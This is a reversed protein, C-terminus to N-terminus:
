WRFSVAAAEAQLRRALRRAERLGLFPVVFRQGSAAAGATDIRVRAMGARRDLPTQALTVSQIKEFRVCALRRALLGDRLFVAREGLGWALTRARTRALLLALGVATGWILTITLAIVLPSSGLPARGTSLVALPLLLLLWRVAMRRAARPHVGRWAVREFDAEPQVEALIRSLEDRRCLPVLWKRAVQTESTSDGGASAARLSMRALLRQLLGQHVDLFQVRARPLSATQRTLLGCTTRLDDGRREIRFGHLTLVAWLVTGLQLLVFLGGALLVWGHWGLTRASESARELEPGLRARIRDPDGLERLAVLAGGLLVLGRQELLGFLLVDLPRMRFFPAPADAARAFAEDASRPADPAADARGEPRAPRAFVRTRLEALQASTIVRFVAEPEKGAATELRVEVVGFLRHLPGQLTDINQIRAYPVHRVNRIIVGERIVLEGAAFGYRFTAFRLLAQFFPPLLFVLYWAEEARAAFFLVATGYTALSVFRRGADFLLAAPHLRRLASEPEMPEM